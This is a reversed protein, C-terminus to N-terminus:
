ALIVVEMNLHVSIYRKHQAVPIHNQNLSRMLFWFYAMVASAIEQLIDQCLRNYYILVQPMEM